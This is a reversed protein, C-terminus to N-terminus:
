LSSMLVSMMLLALLQVIVENDVDSWDEFLLLSLPDRHCLLLLVLVAVAVDAAAMKMLASRLCHVVM